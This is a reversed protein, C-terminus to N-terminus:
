GLPPCADIHAAATDAAVLVRSLGASQPRFSSSIAQLVTRAAAAAALAEDTDAGAGDLAAVAAQAEKGRTAWIKKSEAMKSQQFAKFEAVEAESLGMTSHILAEAPRYRSTVIGVRAVDAKNPVAAMGRLAAIQHLSFLLQEFVSNLQRESLEKRQVRGYFAQAASFDLACDSVLIAEARMWNLTSPLAFVADPIEDPKETLTGHTRMRTYLSTMPMGKSSVRKVIKRNQRYGGM